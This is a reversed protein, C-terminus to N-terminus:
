FMAYNDALHTTKISLFRASKTMSDVIFWIADHKMLSKPLGTIFYINIIKWKWKPLEIDEVKDSPRQYRSHCTSLKSM